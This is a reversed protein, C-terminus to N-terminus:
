PRAGSTSGFFVQEYARCYRELSFRQEVTQRARRGAEARTHSDLLRSLSAELVDLDGPAADAIGGGAEFLMPIDGVATAVCPLGRAMGDLLFVPLGEYESTMLCLDLVDYYPLPDTQM